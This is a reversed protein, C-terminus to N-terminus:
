LWKMVNKEFHITKIYFLGHSALWKNFNSRIHDANSTPRSISILWKEPKEGFHHFSVM